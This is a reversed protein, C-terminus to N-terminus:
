LYGVATKHHFSYSIIYALLVTTCLVINRMRTHNWLCKPVKKEKGKKEGVGNEMKQKIKQIVEM